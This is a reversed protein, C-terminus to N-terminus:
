YIYASYDMGEFGWLNKYDGGYGTFRLVTGDTLVLTRVGDEAIYNEAVHDAKVYYMKGSASGTLKLNTTSRDFGIFVPFSNAFNITTGGYNATMQVRCDCGLYVLGDDYVPTAFVFYHFTKGGQGVIQGINVADGIYDHVNEDTLEVTVYKASYAAEYDEQRVYPFAGIGELEGALKDFGDEQRVEFTIPEIDGGEVTVATMDESLTWVAGEGGYYDSLFVGDERLEFSTVVPEHDTDELAIPEVGDGTVENVWVSVLSQRFEEYAAAAEYAARAATLEAYNSIRSVDAVAACAEEAAAIAAESDLTIEGIASILGEANLIDYAVRADTLVTLNEVSAQDEQSLAAYAEEATLIAAESDLTVEGIAGILAEANKAEESKCGCLSLLMMLVLLLSLARKM